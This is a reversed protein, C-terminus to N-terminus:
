SLIQNRFEFVWHLKERLYVGILGVVDFLDSNNKKLASFIAVACM